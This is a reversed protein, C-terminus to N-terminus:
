RSRLIRYAEDYVRLTREATRSWQFEQARARACQVLQEAQGPNTFLRRLTTQLEVANDIFLADQQALERSAPIDSVILPVGAAMAELIPLGFGEYLSPYVVVEAHAYWRGLDDEPVFGPRIINAKWPSCEIQQLLPEVHWGEKGILVLDHPVGENKLGEFAEVLMGINKRPELTSVCLIYPTAQPRPGAYQLAKAALPIATVPATPRLERLVDAKTTESVTIIHDSNAVLHPFLWRHVVRSTRVHMDPM